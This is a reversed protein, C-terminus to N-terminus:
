GGQVPPMIAIEEGPKLKHNRDIFEVGAGILISKDHSRLAPQKAYIQDLLDRVTAGEVLDVDLELMGVLDRLQAYFQVHIKM